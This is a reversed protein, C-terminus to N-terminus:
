VAAISSISAGDGFKSRRSVGGSMGTYHLVLMDPPTLRLDFNPSPAEILEM